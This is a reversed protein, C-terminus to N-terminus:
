RVEELDCVSGEELVTGEHDRLIYWGYRLCEIVSGQEMHRLITGAALLVLHRSGARVEFADEMTVRNYVKLWIM